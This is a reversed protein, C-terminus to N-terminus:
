EKYGKGLVGRKKLLMALRDHALGICAGAWDSLEVGIVNPAFRLTLIILLLSLLIRKVNDFWLFRWSHDVPSGPAMPKRTLAQILLSVGAAIIAWAFASAFNHPDNAGLLSILFDKM